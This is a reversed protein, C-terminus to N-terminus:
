KSFTKGCNAPRSERSRIFEVIHRMNCVIRATRNKAGCEDSYQDSYQLETRTPIKLRLKRSSIFYQKLPLTVTASMPHFIEM